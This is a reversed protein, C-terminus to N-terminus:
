KREIVVDLDEGTLVLTREAISMRSNSEVSSPV